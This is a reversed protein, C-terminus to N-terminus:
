TRNTAAAMKVAMGKTQDMILETFVSDSVKWIPAKM